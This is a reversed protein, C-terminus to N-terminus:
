KCGKGAERVYSALEGHDQKRLLEDLAPSKEPHSRLISKYAKLAGEVGAIYQAVDEGAHDPHEILFAASSLAVQTAIVPAYKYGRFDGLSQPCLNVQVDPVDAIWHIAWQVEPRLGADLPTEELKRAIAVARKREEPTSPGRKQQAAAMTYLLLVALGVSVQNRM